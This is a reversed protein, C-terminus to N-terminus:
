RLDSITIGFEAILIGKGSSARLIDDNEHNPERHEQRKKKRLVFVFGELFDAM